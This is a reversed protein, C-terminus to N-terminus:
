GLELTTDHLEVEQLYEDMYGSNPIGFVAALAHELDAGGNSM